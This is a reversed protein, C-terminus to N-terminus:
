KLFKEYIQLFQNGAYKAKAESEFCLRSGVDTYTNGYSYRTDSFGFGSSLNFYPYYKEQDTDDWDPTWGQNIAKAATKLKEYAVTDPELNSFQENFEDETTGVAHCADSFSKIDKWDGKKVSNKRIYIVGDVEIENTNKM